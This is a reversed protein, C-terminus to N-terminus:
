MSPEQMREICNELVRALFVVLETGQGPQFFSDSRSGLAMLGVPTRPGPRLRAVAASQVLGAAAGFVSGDDAIDRYLKAAGGSGLLADVLGPKLDTIEPSVLWSLPNDSPEYGVCVIDVDLLRALDDNVVRVLADFDRASLLALVAAHTRQQVSMNSRSTEIVDRVCERLEEVAEKQQNLLAQQFDVVQAGEQPADQAFRGPMNMFSLVELRERFFDPNAVLFEAVDDDSLSIDATELTEAAVEDKGQPM